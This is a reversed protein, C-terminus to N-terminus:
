QDIPIPYFPIKREKEDELSLGVCRKVCTGIHQENTEIYKRIEILFMPETSHIEAGLIRKPVESGEKIARVFCDGKDAYEGGGWTTAFFTKKGDQFLLAMYKNM